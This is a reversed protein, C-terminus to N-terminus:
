KTLIDARITNKAKAHFWKILRRVCSSLNSINMGQLVAANSSRQLAKGSFARGMCAARGEPERADWALHRVGLWFSRAMGLAGHLVACRRTQALVVLGALLVWDSRLNAM